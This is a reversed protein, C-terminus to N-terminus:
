QGSLFEQSEAKMQYRSVCTGFDAVTGVFWVWRREADEITLSALEIKPKSILHEAVWAVKNFSGTLPNTDLVPETAAQFSWKLLLYDIPEATCAFVHIFNIPGGEWRSSFLPIKEM